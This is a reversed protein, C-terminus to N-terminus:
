SPHLYHILQSAHHQARAKQQQGDKQRNNDDQFATSNCLAAHCNSILRHLSLLVSM